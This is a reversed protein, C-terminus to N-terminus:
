CPPEYNGPGRLLADAQRKLSDAQTSDGTSAADAAKECLEAAQQIAQKEPNDYRRRDAAEKLEFAALRLRDASAM